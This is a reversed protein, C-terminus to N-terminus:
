SKSPWCNPKYENPQKATTAQNSMNHDAAPLRTVSGRPILQSDLVTFCLHWTNKRMYYVSGLSNVLFNLVTRLLLASAEIGRLAWAWFQFVISKTEYLWLMLKTVFVSSISLIRLFLGWKKTSPTHYIYFLISASSHPNNTYSVYNIKNINSLDVIYICM